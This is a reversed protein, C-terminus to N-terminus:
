EVCDWPSYLEECLIEMCEGEGITCTNADGLFEGSEACVCRTPVVELIGPLTTQQALAEENVITFPDDLTVKVNIALAMLFLGVAVINTIKRLKTNM